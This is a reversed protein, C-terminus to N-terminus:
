VVLEALRMFLKATAVADHIARHAHVNLLGFHKLMTDLKYDRLGKVYARGLEETDEHPNNFTLGIPAGAAIIFGLDFTVHHGVLIAGESFKYFDHLADAAEPADALDSDKISTLNSIRETLPEHPNVYTSFTETLVGNVLKVAGIEIIKCKEAVFGTTELDFVCYTKGALHRPVPKEEDFLGTQRPEIYRKPSCVKYDARIRMPPIKIEVEPVTCYSLSTVFMDYAINGRFNNERLAGKVVVEKGDQLLVIKSTKKGRPFYLCKLTGTPDTLKFRYFVKQGEEGERPRRKCETFESVRGCYTVGEAAHRADCIYGARDYIPKGVLESVNQPVIYRGDNTEYVYQRLEEEAEGIRDIPNANKQPMFDVTIRECYSSALMHRLKQPVGQKEAYKLVDEDLGITIAYDYEGRKEIKMDEVFVYPAVSPYDEFFALLKTKFFGEDFHSKILKVTVDSKLDLAAKIADSIRPAAARVVEETPEPYLLNVRVAEGKVDVDASQLVLYSFEDNTIENFKTMLASAM